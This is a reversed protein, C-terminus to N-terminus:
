FPWWKSKCIINSLSDMGTDPEIPMARGAEPFEHITNLTVGNQYKSSAAKLTVTRATCDIIQFEKNTRKPISIPVGNKGGEEVYKTWVNIKNGNKVLSSADYYQSGGYPKWDAALVPSAAIFSCAAVMGFLFRIMMIGQVNIDFIRM